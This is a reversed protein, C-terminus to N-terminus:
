TKKKKKSERWQVEVEMLESRYEGKNEALYGDRLSNKKRDHIERERERM